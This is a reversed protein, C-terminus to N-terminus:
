LTTKENAAVSRRRAVWEGLEEAAMPKGLFYGQIMDCGYQGLLGLSTNNEVGEAVVSLGM